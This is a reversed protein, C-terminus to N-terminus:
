KTVCFGIYSDCEVAVVVGPTGVALFDPKPKFFFLDGVADFFHRHKAVPLFSLQYLACQGMLFTALV